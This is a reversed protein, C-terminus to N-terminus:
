YCKSENVLEKGANGACREKELKRTGNGEHPSHFFMTWVPGVSQCVVSLRRSDLLSGLIMERPSNSLVDALWKM